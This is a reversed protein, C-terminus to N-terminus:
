HNKKRTIINASGTIEKESGDYLKMMQWKDIESM